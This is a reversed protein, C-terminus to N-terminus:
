QLSLCDTEWKVSYSFQLVVSFDSITPSVPTYTSCWTLYFEHRQTANRLCLNPCGSGGQKNSKGWECCRGERRYLSSGTARAKRPLNNSICVRVGWEWQMSNSDADRPARTCMLIQSISWVIDEKPSEAFISHQMDRQGERQQGQM